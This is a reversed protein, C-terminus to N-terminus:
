PRLSLPKSAASAATGDLEIMCSSCEELRKQLETSYVPEPRAIADAVKSVDGSPRPFAENRVGVSREAMEASARKSVHTGTVM